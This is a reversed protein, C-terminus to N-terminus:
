DGEHPSARGRGPPVDNSRRHTALRRPFSREGHSQSRRDVQRSIGERSLFSPPVDLARGAHASIRAVLADVSEIEEEAGLFRSAREFAGPAVRVGSTRGVRASERLCKQVRAARDLEALKLAAEIAETGTAALTVVYDRGTARKVRESLRESLRGALGRVSAQANFPRRAALVEQARAVLLPHNHGFLSAGFGGMMDLVRVESGAADRYFLYDGEARSYAVDLAVAELVEAVRPKLFRGYAARGLSAEEELPTFTLLDAM